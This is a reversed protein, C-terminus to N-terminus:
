PSVVFRAPVPIDLDQELERIRELIIDKHAYPDEPWERYLQKLYDYAERDKGQRRLLDAYIRSAHYPADPMKSAKLFWEAAQDYEKLRNLYVQAIELLIEPSEPHFERARDLLALAQEAQEQEIALMRSEPLNRGGGEENIRWHPMDYAIMRAGNIWFFEARPDLSTVLRILTDAKAREKQEWITNLQIWLFDALVTRFGGLVGVILGQGLAGEVAELRMAPQGAKVVEWNIRELPRLALGLLLFLLLLLGAFRIQLFYNKQFITKIWDAM